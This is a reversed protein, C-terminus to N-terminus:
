FGTLGGLSLHAPWAPMPPDSCRPMSRCDNSLREPPTTHTCPHTNPGPPPWQWLATGGALVCRKTLPAPCPSTSTPARTEGVRRRTPISLPVCHGACGTNHPVCADACAPLGSRGAAAAPMVQSSAHHSGGRQMASTDAAPMSSSVLQTCLVSHMAGGACLACAWPPLLTLHPQLVATRPSKGGQHSSLSGGAASHRHTHQHNTGLFGISAPLLRTSSGRAQYPLLQRAM